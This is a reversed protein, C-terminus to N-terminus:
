DHQLKVFRKRGTDTNDLQCGKKQAFSSCEPWITRRRCYYRGLNRCDDDFELLSTVRHWGAHTLLCHLSLFFDLEYEREKETDVLNDKLAQTAKMVTCKPVTSWQAQSMTPLCYATYIGATFAQLYVSIYTDDSTFTKYM